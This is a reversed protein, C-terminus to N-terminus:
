ARQPLEGTSGVRVMELYCAPLCEGPRVAAM